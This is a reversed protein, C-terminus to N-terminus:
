KIVVKRGNIIYVGNVLGEVSHVNKRVVRGHMDYIDAPWISAGSASLQGISTLEGKEVINNFDKWGDAAKYADKSGVPVNLQCNKNTYYFVNDGLVQPPTTALCNIVEVNQIAMFAEDGLTKVNKGITITKLSNCNLFAGTGIHNVSNPIIVEKLGQIRAFAYDSITDLNESISLSEMYVCYLFAEAGIKEVSNPITVTKINYCYSFANRGISMLGEPFSVSPLLNCYTFTYDKIESVGAPVTIPSSLNYCNYFAYEGIANVSQPMTVSALNSCQCFAYNGISTIGEPIDFSKMSLSGSFAFDGIANVGEPIVTQATGRVITNTQTEIIANCNNRSDYFRNEEDVIITNLNWCYGFAQQDIQWISKPLTISTLGSCTWFARYSIFEMGEPINISTLNDCGIFAFQTIGVIGDPIVTSACGGQLWNYETEIIANCGNRSDYVPNEADVVISVLNDCDGFAANWIERVSKPIYVSSINTNWFADWGIRTVGNPINASALNECHAFASCGITTVGEDITVKRISARYDNWPADYDYDYMEGNGSITLNGDATLTWTLNDGCTGEALVDKGTKISITKPLGHLNWNDTVWRTNYQFYFEKLEMGDPLTITINHYDSAGTSWM